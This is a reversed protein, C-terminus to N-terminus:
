KEDRLANVVSLDSKTNRTKSNFLRVGNRVKLSGPAPLSQRTLESIVQGLTIGRRRALQKLTVLLEDDIEV